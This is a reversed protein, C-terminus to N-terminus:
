KEGLEQLLIICEFTLWQIGQVRTDLLRGNFNQPALQLFHTAYSCSFKGVDILAEVVAVVIQTGVQLAFVFDILLLFPKM